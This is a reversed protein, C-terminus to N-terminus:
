RPRILVSRLLADALCFELVSWRRPRGIAAGSEAVEICLWLDQDDSYWTQFM